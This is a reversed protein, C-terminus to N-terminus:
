DKEKLAKRVFSLVNSEKGKGRVKSVNKSLTLGMEIFKTLLDAEKDKLQLGIEIQPEKYDVIVFSLQDKLEDLLNLYRKDFYKLAFRPNDSLALFYPNLPGLNVEELTYIYKQSKEILKRKKKSVQYLIAPPTKDIEIKIFITDPIGGFLKAFYYAYTRREVLGLEINIKVGNKISYIRNLKDLEKVSLKAHGINKRIFQKILNTYQVKKNQLAKNGYFYSLITPLIVLLLFPLFLILGFILTEILSM